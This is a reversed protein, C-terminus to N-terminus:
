KIFIQSIKRGSSNCGRKRVKWIKNKKPNRKGYDLELLINTLSM